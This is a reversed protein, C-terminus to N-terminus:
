KNEYIFDYIFKQKNDIFVSPQNPINFTTNAIIKEDRKLEPFRIYRYTTKTDTHGIARATKAIDMCSEYFNKIWYARLSHFAIRYLNQVKGNPYIVVQYIEKLFPYRDEHEKRKKVVEQFIYKTSFPFMRNNRFTYLNNKFYLQLKLALWEPIQREKIKYRIREPRVRPKSVLYKLTRFDNSFGEFQSHGPVKLNIIDMARLGVYAGIEIALRIKHFEPWFSRFINLEEETIYKGQEDLTQIIIQSM